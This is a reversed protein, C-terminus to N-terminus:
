VPWLHRRRVRSPGLGTAPVERDAVYLLAVLFPIFPFLVPLAGNMLAFLLVLELLRRKNVRLVLFFLYGLFLAGIFGLEFAFAGAYSMIVDTKEGYWFFGGYWGQIAYYIDSFSSFGHPTFFDAVAGHWPYVAHAVRMNVSADQRVLELPGSAQVLRVLTGVRTRQLFQNYGAGVTVAMFLIVVLLKLRLRYLLALAMAIMLFLLAMSSRAVFALFLMNVVVLQADSGKPRYRTAVCIIWSFFLLLIGFYTPEVALSPMGRDATTRITTLGATVAPGFIQQLAGVGLYVVNAAKIMPLPIGFRRLYIVYSIILLPVSAYGFVGRYFRFDLDPWETILGVVIVAPILLLLRVLRIDVSARISACLFLAGALAPWPQSDLTNLAFSLWPFLSLVVFAHGTLRQVTLPASRVLEFRSRGAPLTSYM